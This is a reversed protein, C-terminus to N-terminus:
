IIKQYFLWWNIVMRIQCFSPGHLHPIPGLLFRCFYPLRLLFFWLSKILPQTCHLDSLDAILTKQSRMCGKRMKVKTKWLYRIKLNIMTTIYFKIQYKQKIIDVLNSFYYTYKNIFKTFPYTSLYITHTLCVSLWPGATQGIVDEVLLSMDYKVMSQRCWTDRERWM